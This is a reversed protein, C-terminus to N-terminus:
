DSDIYYIIWLLFLMKNKSLDIFYRQKLQFSQIASTKKLIGSIYLSGIESTNGWTGKEGEESEVVQKCSFSHRFRKARHGHRFSVYTHAYM